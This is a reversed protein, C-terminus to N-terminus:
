RPLSRLFSLIEAAHIEESIQYEELEDKIAQIIQDEKLASLRIFPLLSSRFALELEWGKPTLYILSKYAALCSGKLTVTNAGCSEVSIMNRRM